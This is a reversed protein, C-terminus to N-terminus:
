LNDIWKEHKIAPKIHSICRAAHMEGRNVTLLTLSSTSSSRTIIYIIRTNYKYLIYYVSLINNIYSFKLGTMKTRYILENDCFSRFHNFTFCVSICEAFM